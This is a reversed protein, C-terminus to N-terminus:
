AASPATADEYEEDEDEPPLLRRTGVVAAAGLPLLQALSLSVLARTLWGPFISASQSVGLVSVYLLGQGVFIAAAGVGLATFAGERQQWCRVAGFLGIAIFLVTQAASVLSTTLAVPTATLDDVLHVLNAASIVGLVVAAPRALGPWVGRESDPKSRFAPAMVLTVALLAPVIWVVPTPGPVWFLTGTVLTEEGGVVVPVEYTLIETEVETDEVAPPINAGMWHIRHDHWAYVPRSSVQEWDPEAGVDVTPPIATAAFRDQNLYYAESNLNAFAGDPGIRLYPEMSYGLITIEEGTRNSAGLFEDGNYIRFDLGLVDPESDIRSDYNSADSGRGHAMAPAALALLLLLGAATVLAVRALHGVARM